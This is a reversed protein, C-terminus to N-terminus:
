EQWPLQKLLANDTQITVCIDGSKDLYETLLHSIKSWKESELWNNLETTLNKYCEWCNPPTVTEEEYNDDEITIADDDDDEDVVQPLDEEIATTSNKRSRRNVIQSLTEKWRGLSSELSKPVSHVPYRRHIKSPNDEIRVEVRFSELEGTTQNIQEVLNLDIQQAM